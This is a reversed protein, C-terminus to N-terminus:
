PIRPSPLPGDSPRLLTSLLRELEQPDVPKTLHYDFGAERARQRDSEQGYGTLAVLLTGRLTPDARLRRAVEYGDMEPLGIDLLVLDPRAAAAAALALSGSHALRVEYGWLELVEALTVAAAVNDEVLLIEAARGGHASPITGAPEPLAAAPPEGLPLLVRFESGRGLGASHAEVSGGHLEVLRRVMTLGIGLGGSAPGQSRDLQFFLDFIHLLGEPSIGIGTDRVRIVAVGVGSSAGAGTERPITELSIWVRGGPAMYKVANQVLNTIVQELRVSDADVWTAEAPLDLSLQHHKLELMSRSAAVAYHITSVVDVPELRLSIQGRTIRSVDLLDDLLRALHRMQRQLLACTEHTETDQPAARQELLYIGTRIAALPNRLEHSLMALFEDKARDAQELTESREDERLAAILLQQNVRLLEGAREDAAQRRETTESAQSAVGELGLLPWAVYSWYAPPRDSGASSLDALSEAAGNVFVRDLLSRAAATQDDPCVDAFPRGLLEAATRGYLRCFAPNVYRLVHSASESVAIAMPSAEAMALALRLSDDKPDSM